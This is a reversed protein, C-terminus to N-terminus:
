SIVESMWHCWLVVVCPIEFYEFNLECSLGNSQFLNCSVIVECFGESTKYDLVGSVPLERNTGAPGARLTVPLPATM